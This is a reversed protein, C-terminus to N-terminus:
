QLITPNYSNFLLTTSTKQESNLAPHKQCSVLVYSGTLAGRLIVDPVVSVLQFKRGWHACITNAHFYAHAAVVCIEALSHQFFIGLQAGRGPEAEEAVYVLHRGNLAYLTCRQVSLTKAMVLAFDPDKLYYSRSTHIDSCPVLRTESWTTIHEWYPALIKQTFQEKLSNSSTLIVHKFIFQQYRSCSNWM